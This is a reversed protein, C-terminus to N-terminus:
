VKTLPMCGRIEGPIAHTGLVNDEITLANPSDGRYVQGRPIFACRYNEMGRQHRTQTHSKRIGSFCVAKISEGPLNM